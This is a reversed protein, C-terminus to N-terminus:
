RRNEQRDPSTLQDIEEVARGVVSGVRPFPMGQRYEDSPVPPIQALGTGMLSPMVSQQGRTLLNRGIRRAMRDLVKVAQKVAATAGGGVEPDGAMPTLLARYVEPDKVAENFVQGPQYQLLWEALKSMGM